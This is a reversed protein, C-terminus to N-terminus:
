DLPSKAHRSGDGGGKSVRAAVRDDVDEAADPEDREHQAEHVQGGEHGSRRAARRKPRARWQGADRREHDRRDRLGARGTSGRGLSRARGSGASSSAVRRRAEDSTRRGKEYCPESAARSGDEPRRIFTRRAHTGFRWLRRPPGLRATDADGIGDLVLGRPKAYCRTEPEARGPHLRAARRGSTVSAALVFGGIGCPRYPGQPARARPPPRMTGTSVQSPEPSAVSQSRVGPSPDHATLRSESRGRAGISGQPGGPDQSVNGSSADSSQRHGVLRRSRSGTAIRHADVAPSMHRGARQRARQPM